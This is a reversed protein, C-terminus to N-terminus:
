VLVVEEFIAAVTVAEDESGLLCNYVEDMTRQRACPPWVCRLSVDIVRGSDCTREEDDMVEDQTMESDDTIRLRGESRGASLVTM